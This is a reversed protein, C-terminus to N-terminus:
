FPGVTTLPFVFPKSKGGRAGRRVARGGGGKKKKGSNSNIGTARGPTPRPTRTTHQSSLASIFAACLGGVGRKKFCLLFPFFSASARSAGSFNYTRHARGSLTSGLLIGKKRKIM